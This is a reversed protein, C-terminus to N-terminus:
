QKLPLEQAVDDKEFEIIREVRLTRVLLVSVYWLKFSSFGLWVAKRSVQCSRPM